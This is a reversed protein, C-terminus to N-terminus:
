IAHCRAFGPMADGCSRVLKHQAFPPSVVDKSPGDTNGGCAGALFAAAVLFEICKFHTGSIKTRTMPWELPTSCSPVAWAAGPFGNTPTGSKLKPSFVM